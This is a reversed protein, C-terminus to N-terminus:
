SGETILRLESDQSVKRLDTSGKKIKTERVTLKVRNTNMLDQLFSGEHM